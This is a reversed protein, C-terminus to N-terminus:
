FPTVTGDPHLTMGCVAGQDSVEYDPHGVVPLWREPM